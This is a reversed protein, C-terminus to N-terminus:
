ICGTFDTAIYKSIDINAKLIKNERMVKMLNNAPKVLGPVDGGIFKKNEERTVIHVGSMMNNYDKLNMALRAAIQDASKKPNLNIYGLSKNWVNVLKCLDEKREEYVSEHVVLLDLVENPMQSSDFIVHAGQNVIRSIMPEFTIVIDAKGKKYFEEQKIEAMPFVKVDEQKLGAKDLLRSLMYFGLSINIISIRKGKIDTLKEIEPRAVVADAGNSVDLVTIIKLPVGDEILSITEDMTLTGIEASGNRFSEMTIDSSPLDLLQFKDENLYGLERALYLPEYGPWPSSAISLPELPAKNCASITFLLLVVTLCINITKKVIKVVNFVVVIM